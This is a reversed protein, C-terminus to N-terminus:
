ATQAPVQSRVRGVPRSACGTAAAALVLYALTRHMTPGELAVDADYIAGTSRTGRQVAEEGPPPPRATTWGRMTGGCYGPATASGAVGISPLAVAPAESVPPGLSAGRHAFHM